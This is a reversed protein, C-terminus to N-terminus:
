SISKPHKFFEDIWYKLNATGGDLATFYHYDGMGEIKSTHQCEYLLNQTPVHLWTTVYCFGFSDKGKTRKIKIFNKM